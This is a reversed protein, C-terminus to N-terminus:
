SDTLLTPAKALAAEYAARDEEPTRRSQAREIMDDIMLTTQKLLRDMEAYIENDTMPFRRV